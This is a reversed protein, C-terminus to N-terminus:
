SVPHRLFASSTPVEAPRACSRPRVFLEGPSAVLLVQAVRCHGELGYFEVDQTGLTDRLDSIWDERQGPDLPNESSAQLFAQTDALAQQRPVISCGFPKGQEVGARRWLTLLDDLRVVPVGSEVAVLVGDPGIHWDGAPGAVVLDGSAPMVFVYELRQLGALTLM